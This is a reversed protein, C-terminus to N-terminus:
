LGKVTVFGEFKIKGAKFLLTYVLVLMATDDLKLDSGSEPSPVKIVFDLYVYLLALFTIVIVIM